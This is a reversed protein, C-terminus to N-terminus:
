IFGNEDNWGWGAVTAFHGQQTLQDGGEDKDTTSYFISFSSLFSLLTVISRKNQKEKLHLSTLHASLTDNGKSQPLSDPLCVPRVTRDNWKFPRKLRILALDLQTGGQYGPAIYVRDGLSEQRYRHRHRRGSPPPTPPLTPPTTEESEEEESQDLLDLSGAIAVIENANHSDHFPHSPPFLTFSYLSASRNLL